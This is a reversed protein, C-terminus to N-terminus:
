CNAGHGHILDSQPLVFAVFTVRKGTASTSFHPHDGAARVLKPFVFEPVTIRQWLMTDVNYVCNFVTDNPEIAMPLLSGTMSRLWSDFRGRDEHELLGGAAWIVSFLFMNRVIDQLVDVPTSSFLDPDVDDSGSLWLPEYVMYVILLPPV